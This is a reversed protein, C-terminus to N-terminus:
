ATAEPAPLGRTVLAIMEAWGCFAQDPVGNRHVVGTIPLASTAPLQLEIWVDQDENYLNSEDMVRLTISARLWM